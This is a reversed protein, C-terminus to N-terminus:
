SKSMAKRYRSIEDGEWHKEVIKSLYKEKIFSLTKEEEDTIGHNLTNLNMELDKLNQMGILNTAFDPCQLSHWVALKGLEIGREQCYQGAEKCLQKVMKSAPHWEPPGKNTLLGMSPAAANIVGINNERFFHMYECLTDDILTYRAYSLILSIRINCQEICEKLVSVPYGTVGIFRAKGDRVQRSLEPLTETTVVHLSPAFEVDHVQIVDVYDLQLLKLSRAVSKRTESVSFDFMREYDLEYRGVKTAIYYAARPIGKLAKGLVTESQGQGYWYATDIYNIGKRIATRVTEIAEEENYKGYHCGLTGCGLSLKSVLLGTKGLPRYEMSEVAELDHFGEVYTPPLNSM